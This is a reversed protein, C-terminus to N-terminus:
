RMAADDVHRGISAEDDFPDSGAYGRRHYRVLRYGDTLAPEAMLSLFATATGTHMFLVAEGGQDGATEYELGGSKQM